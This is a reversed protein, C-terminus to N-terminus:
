SLSTVAVFHQNAGKVVITGGLQLIFIIIKMQLVVLPSLVTRRLYELLVNPVAYSQLLSIRSGYFYRPRYLTPSDSIHLSLSVVPGALRVWFSITFLTNLCRLIHKTEQLKSRGEQSYPTRHYRWSFGTGRTRRCNLAPKPSNNAKKLSVVLYLLMRTTTQGRM